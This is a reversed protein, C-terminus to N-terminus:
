LRTLTYVTAFRLPARMQPGHTARDLRMTGEAQVESLADLYARDRLTDQNYSLVLVAGPAMARALAPLLRAPGAGRCISGSAMVAATGPAVVPDADPDIRTLSAYAGTAEARALMEPSLDVGHLDSFGAVRMAVGSRGTGCGFDLVPAARDVGAEALAAATRFPGILGARDMDADYRAAWDDYLDRTGAEDRDAGWLGDPVTGGSM